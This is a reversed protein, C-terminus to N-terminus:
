ERTRHVRARFRRERGVEGRYGQGREVSWDFKFTLQVLTMFMPM